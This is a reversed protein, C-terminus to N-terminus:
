RATDATPADGGVLTMVREEARAMADHENIYDALDRDYAFIHQLLWQQMFRMVAVTDLDRQRFVRRQFTKIEHELREHEQKQVRFDPYRVNEMLTEECRFHHGTYERLDLIIRNINRASDGRVVAAMLGSAIRVIERHQSDIIEVGVAYNDSWELSPPEDAEPQSAAETDDQRTNVHRALDRDRILMHDLMWDQLFELLDEPSLPHRRYSRRQFRMITQKIDHHGKVHDIREPYRTREMLEEECRFHHVAFERLRNLADDMLGQDRRETVAQVTRNIIGILEKHQSDISDVNMRLDDTWEILHM